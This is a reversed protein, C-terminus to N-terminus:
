TPEGEPPQQFPCVLVVLSGGDPAKFTTPQCVGLQVLMSLMAAIQAM